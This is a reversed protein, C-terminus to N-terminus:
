LKGVEVPCPDSEVEIIEGERGREEADRLLFLAEEKKEAKKIENELKAEM